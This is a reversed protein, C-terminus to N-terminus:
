IDVGDSRYWANTTITDTSGQRIVGVRIRYKDKIVWSYKSDNGSTCDIVHTIFPFDDWNESSADLTSYFNVILSDTTGSSNGQVEVDLTAKPTLTVATSFIETGTVAQSTIIQTKSGFAM